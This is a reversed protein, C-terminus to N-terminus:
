LSSESILANQLAIYPTNGYIRQNIYVDKAQHTLGSLNEEIVCNWTEIFETRMETTPTPTPPPTPLTTHTITQQQM